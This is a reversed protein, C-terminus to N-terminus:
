LILMAIFLYFVSGFIDNFMTLFPGSAAAPDFDFKDLVLPAAVGIFSTALTASVMAIFVALALRAVDPQNYSILAGILAAILGCILGLALGVKMESIVLKFMQKVNITGMGLSRIIITTTQLGVNGGTAMIAPMFAALIAVKELTPQFAYVIIFAIFLEGILTLLLWPTRLKIRTATPTYLPHLSDGVGAMQLMDESAEESIVDLVDDATIRGLLVGRSDIVPLSLVDYKQFIKAVEEQDVYPTTTVEVHEMEDIVITSPTALILRSLSIQGLLKDNDDTVFVLQFDEVEDAILRIWNITDRVTFHENVKVLETQMIGGATDDPYQLLPKVDKAEEPDMKDLVTKATQEPLEGLLDAADDSDMEDAIDAIKDADFDELIDERQEPDLELIVESATENDLAELIKPHDQPDFTQLIHAIEAPHVNSLAERISEMNGQSLDESIRRALEPTAM